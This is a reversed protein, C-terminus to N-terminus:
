TRLTNAHKRNVEGQPAAGPAPPHAHLLGLLHPHGGGHLDQWAARGRLHPPAPLLALAPVPVARLHEGRGAGGAAEQRHVTQLAGQAFM